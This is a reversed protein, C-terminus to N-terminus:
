RALPETVYLTVNDTGWEISFLTVVGRTAVFTADKDGM